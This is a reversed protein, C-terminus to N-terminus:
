QRVASIIRDVTTTASWTRVVVFTRFSSMTVTKINNVRYIVRERLDTYRVHNNGIFESLRNYTIEEFDM